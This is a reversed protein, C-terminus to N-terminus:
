PVAIPLGDKIRGFRNSFFKRKLRLPVVHGFVAFSTVTEAKNKAAKARGKREKRQFPDIQRL